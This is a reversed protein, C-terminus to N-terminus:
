NKRSLMISNVLFKSIKYAPANSNNDAPRSHNDLKHIKIHAKLSPPHNKLRKNTKKHVILNCHELTEIIRKQYKDKPDKPLKQVNNNFNQVKNTYDSTYPAASIVGLNQDIFHFSVLYVIKIYLFCMHHLKKKLRLSLM